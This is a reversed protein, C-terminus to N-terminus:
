FNELKPLVSSSEQAGMRMDTEFPLFLLFLSQFLSLTISPSFFLSLCLFFSSNLSLFFSLNLHVLLYIFFSHFLYTLFSLFFSLFIPLTLSLINLFICQCNSAVSIPYFFSSGDGLQRKGNERDLLIVKILIDHFFELQLDASFFLQKRPNMKQPCFRFPLFFRLRRSSCLSFSSLITTSVWYLLSAQRPCALPM